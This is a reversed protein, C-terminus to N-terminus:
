ALFVHGDSLYKEVDKNGDRAAAGTGLTNALGSFRVADKEMWSPFIM